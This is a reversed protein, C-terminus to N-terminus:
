VSHKEKKKKPKEPGVNQFSCCYCSKTRRLTCYYHKKNKHHSHTMKAGYIQEQVMLQSM